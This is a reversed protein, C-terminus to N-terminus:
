HVRGWTLTRIQKEKLSNTRVIITLKDGSVKFERVLNKAVDAAALAGELHHTVTHSTEDITYTGFYADHGNVSPQGSRQQEAPTFMKTDVGVPLIHSVKRKTNKYVDEAVFATIGTYADCSSYTGNYLFRLTSSPNSLQAAPAEAHFVAKARRSRAFRPIRLFLYSAPSYDMYAIIDYGSLM